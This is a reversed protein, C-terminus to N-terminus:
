EKIGGKLEILNKKIFPLERLHEKWEKLTKKDERREISLYLEKYLIGEKIQLDIIDKLKNILDKKTRIM